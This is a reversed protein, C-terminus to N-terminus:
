APSYSLELDEKHWVIKHTMNNHSALITDQNYKLTYESLCYMDRSAACLSFNGHITFDNGFSITLIFEGDKCRHMRIGNTWDMSKYKEQLSLYWVIPDKTKTDSGLTELVEMFVTSASQKDREHFYTRMWMLFAHGRDGLAFFIIFALTWANWDSLLPHGYTSLLYGSFLAIAACALLFPINKM